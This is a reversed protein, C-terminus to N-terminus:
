PTPNYHHITATREALSGVELLVPLLQLADRILHFILVMRVAETLLGLFLRWQWRGDRLGIM